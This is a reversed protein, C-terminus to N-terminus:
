GIVDQFLRSCLIDRPSQTAVAGVDLYSKGKVSFLTKQTAQLTHMDHVRVPLRQEDPMSIICM